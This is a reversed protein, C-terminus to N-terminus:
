VVADQKILKFQKTFLFKEDSMKRRRLNCELCALHFNNNNHGHNNDIRDVTWQRPERAIDYIILMEQLCYRCKMDCEIMKNIVDSATIFLSADYFNRKKDQQKYGALKKNIRGGKGGKFFTSGFLGGKEFTINSLIEKQKDADEGCEQKAGGKEFTTNSLIEKQKDADEGCEQKAGGKMFTSFTTQKAGGKEFTSFTSKMMYRNHTGTIHIQKDMCVCSM